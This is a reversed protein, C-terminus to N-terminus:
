SEYNLWRVDSIMTSERKLVADLIAAVNQPVTKKRKGFLSGLLGANFELVCQWREIDERYIVLCTYSSDDCFFNFYWGFDEQDPTKEETKVGSKLFEDILWQAVDDGYCHPNIYHEKSETHNFRETLFTVETNKSEKM